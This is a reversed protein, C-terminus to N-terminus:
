YLMRVTVVHFGNDNMYGSLAVHHAHQGSVTDPNEIRILNHGDDTILMVAAGKALCEEMCERHGDSAGKAPACQSCSVYGFFTLEGDASVLQVMLIGISLLICALVAKKM